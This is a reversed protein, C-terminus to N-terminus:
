PHHLTDDLDSVVVGGCLGLSRYSLLSLLSLGKGELVALEPQDLHPLLPFGLLVGDFWELALETLFLESLDLNQLPMNFSVQLILYIM